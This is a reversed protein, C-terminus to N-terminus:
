NLQYKYNRRQSHSGYGPQIAPPDAKNTESINSVFDQRYFDPVSNTRGCNALRIKKNKKKLFDIKPVPKEIIIKEINFKKKLTNYVIATTKWEGALLVIKKSM